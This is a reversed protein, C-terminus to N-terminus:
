SPSIVCGHLTKLARGGIECTNLEVGVGQLAGATKNDIPELM